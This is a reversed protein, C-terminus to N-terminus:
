QIGDIAEMDPVTLMRAEDFYITEQITRREMCERKSRSDVKKLFADEVRLLYDLCRNFHKSEFASFTREKKWAVIDSLFEKEFVDTCSMKGSVAADAVADMLAYYGLLHNYLQVSLNSRLIDAASNYVEVVADCKQSVPQSAFISIGAFYRFTEPYVISLPPTAEYENRMITHASFDKVIRKELEDSLTNLKSCIDDIRDQTELVAKRYDGLGM